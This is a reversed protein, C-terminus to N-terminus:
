MPLAARAAACNSQVMRTRLICGHTGCCKNVRAIRQQGATERRCAVNAQAARAPLLEDEGAREEALALAVRHVRQARESPHHFSRDDAGLARGASAAASRTSRREIQEV